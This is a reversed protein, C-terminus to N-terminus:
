RRGRQTESRLSTRGTTPGAALSTHGRKGSPLLFRGFRRLSRDPEFLLVLEQGPGGYLSAAIGAWGPHDRVVLFGALALGFPWWWLGLLRSPMVNFVNEMDQRAGPLAALWDFAYGTALVLLAHGVFLAVFGIRYEPRRWLIWIALPAYIPKPVMVLLAFFAWTAIKRDRAAWYGLALFFMAVNGEMVDMWFSWSIFILIRLPWSPIALVAVVKAARWILFGVPGLVAFPVMLWAFVPSYLYIYGRGWHYMTGDFLHNAATTYIPYDWPGYRLEWPFWLTLFYLNLALYTALIALGLLHLNLTPLRKREM